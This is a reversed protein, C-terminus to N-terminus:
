SSTIEPSNLGKINKKQIKTVFLSKSVENLFIPWKKYKRFLSRQPNM